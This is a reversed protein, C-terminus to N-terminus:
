RVPFKLRLLTEMLQEIKRGYSNLKVIRRRRPGSLRNEHDLFESHHRRDDQNARLLRGELNSDGHSLIKMHIGRIREHETWLAGYAHAINRHM